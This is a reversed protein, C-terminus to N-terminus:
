AHVPGHKWDGTAYLDFRVAHPVSVGAYYQSEYHDNVFIQSGALDIELAHKSRAGQLYLIGGVSLRSEQVCLMWLAFDSGEDIIHILYPM